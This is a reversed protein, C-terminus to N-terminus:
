GHRHLRHRRAPFELAFDTTTYRVVRLDPQWFGAAWGAKAKLHQLFERPDPLQEWVKPLFTARRGRWELVLGDVGPEIERLLEAESHVEVPELDSLVAISLEVVAAWEGAALPEFRPDDFASARANRWVDLALPRDAELAGCCGRLGAAVHLSVFTAAPRAFADPFAAADPEATSALGIRSEIAVAATELLARREIEDLSPISRTVGM